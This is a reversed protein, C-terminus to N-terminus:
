RQQTATFNLPDHQIAIQLTEKATQPKGLLLFCEARTAEIFYYETPSLNETPPLAKQILTAREKIVEQPMGALLAMTASNIGSYYGHTDHYAAEYKQASNLAHKTADKGTARLYLDKSLRGGLSMIDEHHRVDALGYRQYESLAFDLSGMRALALVAQHQLERSHPSARLQVVASEYSNLYDHESPGMMNVTM